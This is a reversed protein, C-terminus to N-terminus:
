NSITPYQKLKNEIQRVTLGTRALEFLDRIMLSPPFNNFRACWHYFEEELQDLEKATLQPKSIPKRREQIPLADIGHAM